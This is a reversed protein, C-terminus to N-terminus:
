KPVAGNGGKDMSTNFIVFADNSFSEAYKRLLSVNNLSTKVRASNGRTKENTSLQTKGQPRTNSIDPTSKGISVMKSELPRCM